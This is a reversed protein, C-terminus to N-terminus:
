LFGTLDIINHNQGFSIFLPPYSILAPLALM